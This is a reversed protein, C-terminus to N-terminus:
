QRSRRYRERAQARQLEAYEPDTRYRERRASNIRDAIGARHRKEWARRCIRCGQPGGTEELLHDNKCFAQPRRRQVNVLHTVAQLHAPNVCNRVHCLHDLELGEPVPGNVHEWVARHVSMTPGGNDTRIQGYGKASHAGLWLWCGSPDAVTRFMLREIMPRNRLRRVGPAATNPKLRAILESRDAM